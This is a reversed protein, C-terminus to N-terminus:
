VMAVQSHTHISQCNSRCAVLLKRLHALLLFHPPASLVAAIRSKAVFSQYGPVRSGSFTLSTMELTSYSVLTLIKSLYESDEQLRRRFLAGGPKNEAASLLAAKTLTNAVQVNPFANNFLLAARLHEIAVQLIAHVIPRQKTLLLKKTRECIVLDM